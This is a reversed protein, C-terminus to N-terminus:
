QLLFANWIRLLPTRSFHSRCRVGCGRRFHMSALSTWLRAPALRRGATIQMMANEACACGCVCHRISGIDEMALQLARSMAIRAVACLATNDEHVEMNAELQRAEMMAQEEVAVRADVERVAPRLPVLLARLLLQVLAIEDQAESSGSGLPPLRTHALAAHVCLLVLRQPLPVASRSLQLAEAAMVAVLVCRLLRRLPAMPPAADLAETLVHNISQASDPASSSCCSPVPSASSPPPPPPPMTKEKQWDVARVLSSSGRVLLQWSCEGDLVAQLTLTPRLRRLAAVVWQVHQM